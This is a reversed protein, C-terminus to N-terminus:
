YRIQQEAAVENIHEMKGTRYQSYLRRIDDMNDAIFPGHSVIEHRQPEAAYLVLRAGRDGGTLKLESVGPRDARDLWGVQDVTLMRGDAGANLSGDIVYLFM